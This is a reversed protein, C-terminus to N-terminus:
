PRYRYEIGYFEREYISINAIIVAEDYEGTGIKRKWIFIQEQLWRARARVTVAKQEELAKEASNDKQKAKTEQQQKLRKILYAKTYDQAAFKKKNKDEKTEIEDTEDDEQSMGFQTRPVKKKDKDFHTKTNSKTTRFFGNPKPKKKSYHTVAEKKQGLQKNLGKTSAEEKKDSISDKNLLGQKVRDWGRAQKGSTKKTM